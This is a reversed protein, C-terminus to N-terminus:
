SLKINFPINFAYKLNIPESISDLNIKSFKWYFIFYPQSEKQEKCRLCFM